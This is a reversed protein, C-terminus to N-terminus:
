PASPPGVKRDISELAKLLNNIQDEAIRTELAGGPKLGAMAVQKGLEEGGVFGAQPLGRMSLLLQEQMEQAKATDLPKGQLVDNLKRFKERQRFLYDVEKGVAEAESTFLDKVTQWVPSNAFKERLEIQRKTAEEYARNLEDFKKRAAAAQQDQPLNFIGAAKGANTVESTGMQEVQQRQEALSRNGGLADSMQKARYAVYGTAVAVGVLTASGGLGFALIAAKAIAFAEAIRKAWLVLETMVVIAGTGAAAWLLLKAASDKTEDSLNSFWNAARQIAMSAKLMYPLLAQGVQVALLHISQTLTDFVAPSAAATFGTIAATTAAFGVKASHLFDGFRKEAQEGGGLAKYFKEQFEKSGRGLAAFLLELTKLGTGLTQIKRGSNVLDTGFEVMWKRGNSFRQFERGVEIVAGGLKTQIAQGVQAAKVGVQALQQGLNGRAAIDVYLEGIKM